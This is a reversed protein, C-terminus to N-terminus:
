LISRSDFGHKASSYTRLGLRNRDLSFDLIVRSAATHM